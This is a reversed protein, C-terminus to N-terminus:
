MLFHPFAISGAGDNRSASSRRYVHPGYPLHSRRPANCAGRRERMVPHERVKPPRAFSVRAAAAEEVAPVVVVVAVVALRRTRSCSRTSLCGM